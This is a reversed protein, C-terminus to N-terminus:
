VVLKGWLRSQQRYSSNKRREEQGEPTSCSAPRFESLCYEALVHFM